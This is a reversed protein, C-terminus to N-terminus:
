PKGRLTAITTTALFKKLRHLFYLKGKLRSAQGSVDSDMDRTHSQVVKMARAVYLEINTM